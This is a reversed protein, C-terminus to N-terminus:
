RVTSEFQKAVRLFSRASKMLDAASYDVQYRSDGFDDLHRQLDKAAVIVEDWEAEAASESEVIQYRVTGCTSCKVAGM